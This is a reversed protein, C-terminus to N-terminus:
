MKLKRICVQSDRHPILVDQLCEKTVQVGSSWSVSVSSHEGKAAITSEVPNIHIQPKRVRWTKGSCINAGICTGSMIEM